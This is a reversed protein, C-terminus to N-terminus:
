KPDTHPKQPQIQNSIPKKFNKSIESFISYINDLSSQLQKKQKVENSLAINDIFNFSSMGATLKFLFFNVKNVLCDRLLSVFIAGSYRHPGATRDMRVM